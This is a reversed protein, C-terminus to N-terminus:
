HLGSSEKTLTRCARLRLVIIQRLSGKPLNHSVETSREQRVNCRKTQPLPEDDIYCCDRESRRGMLSQRNISVRM